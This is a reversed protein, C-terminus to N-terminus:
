ILPGATPPPSQPILKNTYGTFSSRAPPPQATSTLAAESLGSNAPIVPAAEAALPALLPDLERMDASM